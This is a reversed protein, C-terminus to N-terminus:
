PAHRRLATAIQPLWHSAPGRLFFDVIDSLPTPLPNVEITLRDARAAQAVPETIYPFAASTGVILLAQPPDDDLEEYLSLVKEPPLMEGFLVVDPRLRANCLNCRPSVEITALLHEDIRGRARCGTCITDFVHGHIEIVSRIGARRHLGDVNQTLMVFREVTREIRAIAEHAVNPQAAGAQRALEAITQWTRDPDMVLTHASLAEITRDGEEPDDYLGGKGRYTSIGSEASLGAGSIVGLSRVTRLATILAQPLGETQDVLRSPAM